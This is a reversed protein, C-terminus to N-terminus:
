RAGQRDPHQKSKVRGRRGRKRPVAARALRAGPTSRRDTPDPSTRLAPSGFRPAGGGWGEGCLPPPLLHRGGPLFAPTRVLFGREGLVYTRTGVLLSRARVLYTPTGVLVRVGVLLEAGPGFLGASRAFLGANRGFFSRAGLLCARTGASFTRTGRLCTPAGVLFSWAEPLYARTGGSFAWAGPLDGRAGTLVPSSRALVGPVEAARGPALGPPAARAPAGSAHPGGQGGSTPLM